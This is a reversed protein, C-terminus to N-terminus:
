SFKKALDPHVEVPRDYREYVNQVKEALWEDDCRPSFRGAENEALMAALAAEPRFGARLLLGVQRTTWADSGGGPWSILQYEALGQIQGRSHSRGRAWNAISDPLPCLGADADLASWGVVFGGDGRIDVGDGVSNLVPQGDTPGSFYYHWGGERNSPVRAGLGLPGDSDVDVGDVDVVYLGSEKGCVLGAKAAPWKTFWEDVTRLDDTAETKWRVLPRKDTKGGSLYSVAVPFVKWGRHVGDRAIQLGASM